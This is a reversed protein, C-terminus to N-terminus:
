LATLQEQIISELVEQMEAALGHMRVFKKAVLRPDEDGKLRLEEVREGVKIELILRPKEREIFSPPASNKNKV